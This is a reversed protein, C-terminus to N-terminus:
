VAILEMSDRMEELYAVAAARTHVELKRLISKVHSRVTEVSIVLEMAIEGTRKGDALMTLIQWERMTLRARVNHARTKRVNNMRQFERVLVATMQRSLPAEGRSVAVLTDALRNTAMDKTLYGDAGARLARFLDNARDSATLMVIKIEPDIERLETALEVGDGDKLYVDLLAIDYKVRPALSRAVAVSAAEGAIRFGGETLIEILGRRTLEHDEVLFVRLPTRVQTM